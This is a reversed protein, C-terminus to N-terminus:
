GHRVAGCSFMAKLGRLRFGFGDDLECVLQQNVSTVNLLVNYSTDYLPMSDAM